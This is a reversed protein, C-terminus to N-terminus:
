ILPVYAFQEQNRLVWLFGASASFKLYFCFISSFNPLVRLVHPFRQLTLMEPRLGKMPVSFSLFINKLAM